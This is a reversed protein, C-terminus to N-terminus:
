RGLSRVAFVSRFQSRSDVLYLVEIRGSGVVENLLSDPVTVPVETGAPTVANASSCRRIVPHAWVYEIVASEVPCNRILRVTGRLMLAYAFFLLGGVVILARLEILFGAAILVLCAMWWAIPIPSRLDVGFQLWLARHRPPQHTTIYCYYGYDNTIWGDVTVETMSMESRHNGIGM